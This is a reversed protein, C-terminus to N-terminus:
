GVASFRMEVNYCASILAKNRGGVYGPIAGKGGHDTEMKWDSRPEELGLLDVPSM